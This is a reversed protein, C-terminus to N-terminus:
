SPQIQRQPRPTRLQATRTTTHEVADLLPSHTLKAHLAIIGCSSLTIL